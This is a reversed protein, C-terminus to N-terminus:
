ERTLKVDRKYSGKKTKVETKSENTFEPKYRKKDTKPKESNEKIANFVKEMLDEVSEVSNNKM